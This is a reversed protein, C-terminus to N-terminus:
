EDIFFHEPQSQFGSVKAKNGISKWNLMDNQHGKPHGGSLELADAVSALTEPCIKTSQSNKKEKRKIKLEAYYIPSLFATNNRIMVVNNINSCFRIEM